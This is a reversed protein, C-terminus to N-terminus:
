IYINKWFFSEPNPTKLYNQSKSRRFKKTKAIKKTQIKINNIKNKNINYFFFRLFFFQQFKGFIVLFWVWCLVLRISSWSRPTQYTRFQSFLFTCKPAEFGALWSRENKTHTKKVGRSNCDLKRIYQATYHLTRKILITSHWIQSKSNWTRVVVRCM